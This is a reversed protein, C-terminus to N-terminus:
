WDQSQETMTYSVFVFHPTCPPIGSCVLLDSAADVAHSVHQAAQARTERSTYLDLGGVMLRAVVWVRVLFTQM